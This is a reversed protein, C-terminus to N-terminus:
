ESAESLERDIQEMSALPINHLKEDAGNFSFKSPSYDAEVSISSEFADLAKKMLNKNNIIDM